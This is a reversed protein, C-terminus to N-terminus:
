MANEIKLKRANQYNINLIIGLAFFVAVLSSGGFSMLPMPIGFVPLLGIAVSINILFQLMVYGGIGIALYKGFYDECEIATYKILSFLSIM